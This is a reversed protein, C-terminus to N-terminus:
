SDQRSGPRRLIWDLGSSLHFAVDSIYLAAILLFSGLVILLVDATASMTLRWGQCIMVAAIAALTWRIVSGQRSLAHRNGPIWVALRSEKGRFIGLGMGMAFVLWLIAM